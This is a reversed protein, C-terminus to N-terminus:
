SLSVLLLQLLGIIFGLVGGLLEIFKFEKRMISYLIEELKDSSFNQVKTYVTKEVDIDKEIQDTYATIMQPISAKFEDILMNKVNDKLNGKMFMQLMPMAEPLKYTLYNDIKSEVVKMIADTSQPSNLSHKIDEVSFLENAVVKGLKEALKNKRKPFVGQIELFGIKVKEKPHFLMKVAIFNTIWGTIAAIFPLAYILM